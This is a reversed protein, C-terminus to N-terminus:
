HGEYLISRRLSIRHEFDKFICAGEFQVPARDRTGGAVGEHMHLVGALPPCAEWNRFTGNNKEEEFGQLNQEKAQFTKFFRTELSM